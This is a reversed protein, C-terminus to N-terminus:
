SEEEVRLGSTAVARAVDSGTVIGVLRGTRDVVPVADIADDVMARAVFRVDTDPLVCTTFPRVLDRVSRRRLALPGMPWEAFVTRDDIVGLCTEDTAVVLHRLQTRMMLSWATRVSTTPTISVTPASMIDRAVMQRPGRTIAQDTAWTEVSM